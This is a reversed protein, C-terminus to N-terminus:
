FYPYSFIVSVLVYQTVNAQVILYNIIIIIVRCVREDNTILAIDCHVLGAITALKLRM